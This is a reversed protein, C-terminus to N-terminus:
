GCKSYGCQNCTSCGNEYRLDDGGCHSCIEGSVEEGDRIYRKLTRAIVKNYDHLQGESKNLQEVIFKISTGHRLATSIIRTAFEEVPKKFKSTIDQCVIQHESNLLHYTGRKEKVIFGQKLNKSIKVGNKKFCFLEYPSSSDKDFFGVLVLYEEGKITPHFIETYTPNPRKPADHQELKEKQNENVLVGSRSGERYITIGKCGVQWAHIFLDSIEEKTVDKPLNHTVSISHDIWSQIAGQMTVKDFVNIENTTAKYYPSEKIYFDLLEKDTMRASYEDEGYDQINLWEQFKPHLVKYEVWCDGNQDVFSVDPYDKDVKRRRTYSLNFVPEIGSSVQAMLSGTGVPAITLNSINRRGYTTYTMFDKPNANAITSMMQKMYLNNVEKERSFGPFAGRDKAMYISSRYSDLAITKSVEAAFDIFEKSGYRLGLAAGADALGTQGLGTRRGLRLSTLIKFWLKKEVSKISSPEPDKDIKDMIALIKEEELDVLDDMLKQSFFAYLGLKPFDFKAEPTFPNIVFSYINLAALRCSDYPSLPIEGCPNTTTTEFGLESYCDAPSLLQVSDWFLIGPEGTKWAQEIILNWLDIAPYAIAVKTQDHNNIPFKLCHDEKNVVNHLFENNVKISINAGTLQTLDEKVTIFRLIDPHNIHMTIMLAGRRGGQAVERTSNSFRSAFSVAGTSTKASNLVASHMPRLHSIDLGVGGRRKMLQVLEQDLELIAGYSDHKNGIAFCNALSVLRDTGIGFSASGGFILYKFDKLLSYIFSEKLPNPYRKEIRFLEKAMRKHMDDPTKDGTYAYKDQWVSAALENGKFYKLAESSVSTNKNM